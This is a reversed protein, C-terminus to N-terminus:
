RASFEHFSTIIMTRITLGLHSNRGTARQQSPDLGSDQALRLVAQKAPGHM